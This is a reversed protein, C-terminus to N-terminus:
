FVAMLSMTFLCHHRSMQEVTEQAEHDSESPEGDETGATSREEHM